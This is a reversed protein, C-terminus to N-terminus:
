NFNLCPWFSVRSPVTCPNLQRFFRDVPIFFEIKYWICTCKYMFINRVVPTGRNTYNKEGLSPHISEKGCIEFSLSSFVVDKSIYLYSNTTRRRPSFFEVFYLMSITCTCCCFRFDGCEFFPELIAVVIFGIPM